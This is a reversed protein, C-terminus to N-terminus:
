VLPMLIFQSLLGTVPAIPRKLTSRVEKLDTKCGMAINALCVLVIVISTFVTNLPSDARKVVIDVSDTVKYWTENETASPKAESLETGQFLKNVFLNLEARGLFEGRIRTSFNGHEGATINHHIGGVVTFIDNDSSRVVFKVPRDIETFNFTLMKVENETMEMSGGNLSVVPSTEVNHFLWLFTVVKWIRLM